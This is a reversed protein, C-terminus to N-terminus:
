GEGIDTEATKADDAPDKSGLGDRDGAEEDVEDPSFTKAAFKIGEAGRSGSVMEGATTESTYRATGCVM